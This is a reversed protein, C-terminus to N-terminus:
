RGNEFAQSFYRAYVPVIVSVRLIGTTSSSLASFYDVM